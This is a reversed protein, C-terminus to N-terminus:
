LVGDLLLIGFINSSHPPRSLTVILSAPTPHGAAGDVPPRKVAGKSRKSTVAGDEGYIINNMVAGSKAPYPVHPRPANYFTTAAFSPSAVRERMMGASDNPM